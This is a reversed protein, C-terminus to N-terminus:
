EELFVYFPRYKWPFNLKFFSSFQEDAFYFRFFSKEAYQGITQTACPDIAQNDAKPRSHLAHNPLFDDLVRWGGGCEELSKNLAQTVTASCVSDCRQAERGQAPTESSM